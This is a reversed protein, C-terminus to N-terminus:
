QTQVEKQEKSNSEGANGKVRMFLAGACNNLIGSFVAFVVGDSNFIHECYILIFTFFVMLIVLLRIIPEVGEIGTSKM